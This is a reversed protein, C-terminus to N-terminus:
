LFANQNPIPDIIFSITFVFINVFFIQFFLTKAIFRLRNSQLDLRQYILINRFFCLYHCKKLKFYKCNISDCVNYSIM